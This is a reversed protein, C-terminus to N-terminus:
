GFTKQLYIFIRANIGTEGFYIFTRKTDINQQKFILVRVMNQRDCKGEASKINGSMKEFAYWHFKAFNRQFCINLGNTGPVQVWEAFCM